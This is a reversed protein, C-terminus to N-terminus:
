SRWKPMPTDPSEAGNKADDYAVRLAAVETMNAQAWRRIEELLTALSRGLPTLRYEV